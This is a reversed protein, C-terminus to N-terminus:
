GVVLGRHYDQIAGAFIESASASFKSTLVVLPGSWLMGREPDNYPQTRKDSDKVQVVPGNDIFLGTLNISETLSGGGNRRLDLVVADVKEANFKELLRAVDRTTSKYNGTPDDRFGEMDMYFSPLDIIGIKYPAGNAKRGDEVIQSRAESETLEVQARVINYIKPESAHAPLVKLRVTTGRRGRILKVVDRLKMDTVDVFDNSEDQAVALVKDDKKLRGDKDAAGGPIIKQIVTDGEPTAQLSAGIGDLTLKMQIEFDTSSDPAMYSSHPDYATTLATLYRELLEINDTQKWRKLLSHYRRTVKETPSLKDDNSKDTASKRADDGDSEDASKNKSKASEEANQADIARAKIGLLDYKVRKRWLDRVDDDTKAFVAADPDVVMNEDVSFDHNQKVLDDVLKVRQEVRTLFRQFIAQGFQILRVDGMRAWDDLDDKHQDFEDIDAQTFYVRLPDLDKIYNKLWRESMEDDLRHRSLHDTQLKSTVAKTIARDMPQPPTLDAWVCQVSWVAGAVLALLIWTRRRRVLTAHLRSM